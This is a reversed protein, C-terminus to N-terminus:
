SAPPLRTAHVGSGAVDIENVFEELADNLQQFRRSGIIVAIRGQATRAEDKVARELAWGKDTLRIRRFRADEPDTERVLYGRSELHGLIHNVSQKSLVLLSVLDSPRMGDPSPFHFISLHAETLDEYGAAKEAIGYGAFVVPATFSDTAPMMATFDVGSQFTRTKNLPGLKLDVDITTTSDTTEKM